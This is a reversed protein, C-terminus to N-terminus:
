LYIRLFCCSMCVYNKLPTTSCQDIFRITPGIGSAYNQSSMGKLYQKYNENNDNANITSVLNAGINAFYDNFANAISMPDNIIKNECIISTPVKQERKHRSLTENITKWTNKMDNKYKRFIEFYYKRKATEINIKVIREFTKFNTKKMNYVEDTTSNSKWDVYMDNKTNVETLLENTM